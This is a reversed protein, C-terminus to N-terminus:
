TGKCGKCVKTLQHIKKRHENRFKKIETNWVENITSSLINGAILKESDQIKSGLVQCYPINGNVRIQLDKFPMTCRPITNKYRHYPMFIDSDYNSDPHKMVFQPLVTDCYNKWQKIEAVEREKTSPRLMLRLKIMTKSGAAKKYERLDLLNKQLREFSAGMRSSEYLEKGGADVSIEIMSFNADILKKVTDIEVWQGNSVVSLFKTHKSLERCFNSFNPHLTPEGGGIRIRNISNTKVNNIIKQQVEESMHIRDVKFLPNNCYVCKLNCINTLEITLCPPNKQDPFLYPFKLVLLEILTVKSALVHKNIKIYRGIRKLISLIENKKFINKSEEIM